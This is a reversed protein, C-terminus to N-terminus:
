FLNKTFGFYIGSSTIPLRGIGVGKFPIKIYPEIRLAAANGVNVSYGASINLISAWNKSSNKYSLQKEKVEGYSMYRYKYDEKKMLYSSTGILAFWTSKKNIRLNYRVNLPLEIMHCNGDLNEIKTYSPIYVEKSDFYKGDTYYSKKDIYFGSEISWRKNLKYGAVIGGTFGTKNIKQLRITSIDGGGIVGAYVRPTRSKAKVGKSVVVQNVTNSDPAKNRDTKVEPSQTESNIFAEKGNNLPKITASAETNNSTKDNQDEDKNATANKIVQLSVSAVSINENEKGAGAKVQIHRNFSYHHSSSNSIKGTTKNINKNYTSSNNTGSYTEKSMNHKVLDEKGNKGAVGHQHQGSLKDKYTNKRVNNVPLIYLVAVIPLLLLLWLLKRSSKKTNVGKLSDSKVPLAKSVQNWDASDTNLSYNEAARKFIDDMDDTVDPM